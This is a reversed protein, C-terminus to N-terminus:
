KNHSNQEGTKNSSAWMEDESTSSISVAATATFVMESIDARQALADQARDLADETKYGVVKAERQTKEM